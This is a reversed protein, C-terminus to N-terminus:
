RHTIDNCCENPTLCGLRKRPRSNLERATANCRKQSLAAMSVRKPLYQRILGNTNENTGREWAHHPNAFYFRTNTAREINAYGHFETGNDATITLVPLTQRRIMQIVRHTLEDASKSNLKGIEVYGTSREVLTVICPKGKGMVTDIEWHGVETRDEVALPREEIPRKGPLRGRSDRTNHRKRRKKTAQRLYRYLSGGHHKDHWVHLYIAEHSIRLRDKLALRGSIQEPSWKRRLLREVLAWDRDTLRRNRRSEKRRTEARSDAQQYRYRGDKSRNRRIERYITSRHRQLKKAIEAVSRGESLYDRLLHRDILTIQTYTM